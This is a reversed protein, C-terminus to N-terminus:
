GDDDTGAKWERVRKRALPERILVFKGDRYLIQVHEEDGGPNKRVLISEPDEEPEETPEIRGNDEQIVWRGDQYVLAMPDGEDMLAPDAGGESFPGPGVQGVKFCVRVPSLLPDELLYGTMPDMEVYTVGPVDQFDKVPSGALIDKMFGLFIPAAALGGSERSGIKERQDRGVWVGAAIDPTFGVFWADALENTTGTKGGVPRGLAAVRAGTGRTVVGQLMSSMVAATPPSLAQRRDPEFRQIVNGDRDEIHTILMPASVRGGTAFAGYATVMEALTVEGSGLALSLYPPLPSRIGMSRATGIVADPGLRDTLRVSIVNRSRVLAEYLTIPGMYAGDYNRPKWVGGRGDDYEVPEDWLVDAPTFGSDMATTYVFPKFASGPQRRAMWARNFEGEEPDRGGVMAKVHGTALDQCFLAGQLFNPRFVPEFTWTGTKADRGL